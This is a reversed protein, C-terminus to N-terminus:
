FKYLLNPAKEEICKAIELMRPITCAKMMGSHGTTEQGVMISRIKMTLELQCSGLESSPLLMIQVKIADAYNYHFTVKAAKFNTECEKILRGVIRGEPMIDMLAFEKSLPIGSKAFGDILEPQLHQRCWAAIKLERM